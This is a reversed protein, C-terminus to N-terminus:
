RRFLRLRQPGWRTRTVTTRGEEFPRVPAHAEAVHDRLEATTAFRLPCCACAHVM